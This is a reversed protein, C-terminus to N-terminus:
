LHEPQLLHRQAQSWYTESSGWLAVAKLIAQVIDDPCISEGMKWGLPGTLGIFFPFWTRLLEQLWMCLLDTFFLFRFSCLLSMWLASVLLYSMVLCCDLFSFLEVKPPNWVWKIAEWRQCTLAKSMYRVWQPVSALPCGNSDGGGGGVCGKGPCISIYRGVFLSYLLVSSVVSFGACKQLLRVKILYMLPAPATSDTWASKDGRRGTFLRRTM